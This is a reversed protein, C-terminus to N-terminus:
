GPRPTRLLRYVSSESIGLLRQIEANKRGEDKLAWFQPALRMATDARGKYRGDRKARAIGERQRELMMQREFEAIAAMVNLVLAGTPTATDMNLALVVLSAGKGRIIDAIDIFNRVSRALRDIKTVVLSDGERAYDLAAALQPRRADVSSLQESYLKDCGHAKLDRLQADLGAEQDTTSTRAYGIRM